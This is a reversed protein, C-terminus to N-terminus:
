RMLAQKTRVCAEERPARTTTLQEAAGTEVAQTLYNISDVTMLSGCM